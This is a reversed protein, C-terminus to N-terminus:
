DVNETQRSWNVYEFHIIEGKKYPIIRKNDEKENKGYYKERRWENMDIHEHGIKLYDLVDSGVILTWFSIIFVICIITSTWQFTKLQKISNSELDCIEGSYGNNCKCKTQTQNLLFCYGNLSCTFNECLNIKNECNEGYYFGNSPCKCKFSTTNFNLCTANNLCPNWRNCPNANTQCSKGMFNTSCECFYKETLSDLKCSGQNSCNILCHNMDTNSQLISLLAQTEAETLNNLDKLGFISTLNSLQLTASSNNTVKL